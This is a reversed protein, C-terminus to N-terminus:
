TLDSPQQKSKVFLFNGEWTTHISRLDRVYRLINVLEWRIIECFNPLFYLFVLDARVLLILIEDSLGFSILFFLCVCVRINYYVRINIFFTFFIYTPNSTTVATVILVMSRHRVNRLFPYFNKEFMKSTKQRIFRILDTILKAAPNPLFLTLFLVSNNQRYM